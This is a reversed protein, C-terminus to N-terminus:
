ETSQTSQTCSGGCDGCNFAGCGGRTNPKCGAPVCTQGPQATCTLQCQANVIITKGEADVAQFMQTSIRAGAPTMSEKLDGLPILELSALKQKLSPPTLDVFKCHPAKAGADGTATSSGPTSGPTAAVFLAFTLCLVAALLLSKRTM